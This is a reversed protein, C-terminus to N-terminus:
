DKFLFINSKVTIKDKLIATNKWNKTGINFNTRSIEMEGLIQVMDDSFKNIKIKIPVFDSKGKLTLEVNLNIFNENNYFFQKTDIVTIPFKKADFFVESLILSKYKKYNIDVSKIDASIIAKNNKNNNLDINVYGEISKFEGKVNNAFLVPLEFEIKSIDNDIVWKENAKVINTFLLLFILIKKFTIKFSNELLFILKNMINIM